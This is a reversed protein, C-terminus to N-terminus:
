NCSCKEIMKTAEVAEMAEMSANFKIFTAIKSWM